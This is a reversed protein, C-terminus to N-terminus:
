EADVGNEDIVVCRFSDQWNFMVETVRSHSRWYRQLPRALRAMGERGRYWGGVNLVMDFPNSEATVALKGRSDPTPTPGFPCDEEPHKKVFVLTNGSQLVFWLHYPRGFAIEAFASPTIIVGGRAVRQMERCARKPDPLHEFVHHSYAFDFQRDRFPLESLEAQVFRVGRARFTDATLTAGYGLLRHGPELYRDVGVSARPHPHAGCGLDVVSRAAAIRSAMLAAQVSPQPPPKTWPDGLVRRVAFAVRARVSV